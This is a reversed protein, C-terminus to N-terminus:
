NAKWENQVFNDYNAKLGKAGWGLLLGGVVADFFDPPYKRALIGAGFGFCLFDRNLPDSIFQKLRQGGKLANNAVVDLISDGYLAFREKSASFEMLREDSMLQDYEPASNNDIPNTPRTQM